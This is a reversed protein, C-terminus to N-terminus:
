GPRYHSQKVKVLCQCFYELIYGVLHLTVCNIKDPFQEVHKPHYKWGDDLTCVITDVAYPIQWVTVAIQGQGGGGWSINRTSLETIPQTLGMGPLIIDIFFELSVMPFWVRSRRAKLSTGWGVAGGRVLCWQLGTSIEYTDQPTQSSISSHQVKM